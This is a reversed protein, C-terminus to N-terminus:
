ADDDSKVPYGDVDYPMDECIMMFKNFLPPYAKGGKSVLAQYLANINVYVDSGDTVMQTMNNIVAAMLIAANWDLPYDVGGLTVMRATKMPTSRNLLESLNILDDFVPHSLSCKKM